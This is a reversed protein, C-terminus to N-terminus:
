WEDVRGDGNTDRLRQSPAGAVFITIEDIKGDGDFDSERRRERNEADYYTYVEPKGDFDLDTIRCIKRGRERVEIVDPRGDGNLDIREASRSEGDCPEHRMVSQPQTRSCALLGACLWFLRGSVRM